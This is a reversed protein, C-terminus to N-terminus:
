VGGYHCLPQGLEEGLRERFRLRSTADASAIRVIPARLSDAAGLVGMQAPEACYGLSDSFPREQLGLEQGVERFIATPGLGDM